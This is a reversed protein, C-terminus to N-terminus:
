KKILLLKWENDVDLDFLNDISITSRILKKLLSEKYYLLDVAEGMAKGLELASNHDLMEVEESSYTWAVPSKVKEIQTLKSDLDSTDDKRIKQKKGKFDIPKLREMDRLLSSIELLIEKVKEENDKNIPEKSEHEAILSDFDIVEVGSDIEEQTPSIYNNKDEKLEDLISKWEVFLDHYEWMDNENAKKMFHNVVKNKKGKHIRIVNNVDEWTKLDNRSNEIVYLNDEYIQVFRMGIQEDGNEDIYKYEEEVLVPSGDDNFVPDKRVEEHYFERINVPVESIDKYM